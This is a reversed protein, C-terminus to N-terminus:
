EPASGHVMLVTKQDDLSEDVPYYVDLKLAKNEITKYIIDKNVEVKNMDPHKYVLDIM